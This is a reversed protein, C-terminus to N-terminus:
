EYVGTEEGLRNQEALTWEDTATTQLWIKRSRRFVQVNLGYIERFNAELTSVKLNGNISLNGEQHITRVEGVTKNADAHVSNASIGGETHPQAYFELKLYPFKTRFEAQIESIKKEDTILM